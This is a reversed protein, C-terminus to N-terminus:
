NIRLFPSPEIKKGNLFSIGSFEIFFISGEGKKLDLQSPFFLMIQPQGRYEELFGFVQVTKGKLQQIDSFFSLYEKQILAAFRGSKALLFLLRGSKQIRDCFFRVRVLEGIHHRVQQASLVPYPEKRWFGRGKDQAEKQAQVFQSRRSFPFKLFVRAFGEKLILQNFLGPKTWVYALLRGYKDEVEREYSLRVRKRFLHHFTFRKALLAELPINELSDEIEPTDIGILRVRRNHGMDSRVMVTDGDYVTVVTGNTIQGGHVPFFSFCLLFALTKKM